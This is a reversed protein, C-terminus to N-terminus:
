KLVFCPFSLKHFERNNEKLVRFFTDRSLFLVLVLGIEWFCRIRHEPFCIIQVVVLLFFFLFSFRNGKCGVLREPVFPKSLFSCFGTPFFFFLYIFIFLYIFFFIFFFYFVKNSSPVSHAVSNFRRKTM